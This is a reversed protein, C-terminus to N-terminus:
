PLAHRRNKLRNWLISFMYGSIMLTYLIVGIIVFNDIGFVSAPHKTIYVLMNSNGVFVGAIGLGMFLGTGLGKNLYIFIMIAVALVIISVMLKGAIFGPVGAIYFYNKLLLNREQEFTHYRYFVALTSLIDYLIFFIMSPIALLAVQYRKSIEKHLFDDMNLSRLM